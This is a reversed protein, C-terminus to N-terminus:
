AVDGQGAIVVGIEDAVALTVREGAIGAVVGQAAVAAVVQDVTAIARVSRGEDPVGGVVLHDTAATSHAHDVPADVAVAIIYQQADLAQLEGIM